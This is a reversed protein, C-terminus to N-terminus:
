WVGSAAERKMGAPPVLSTGSRGSFRMGCGRGSEKRGSDERGSEKDGSDSWNSELSLGSAASM